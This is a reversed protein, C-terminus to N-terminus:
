KKIGARVRANDVGYGALLGTVGAVLWSADPAISGVTAAVATLGTVVGTIATQVFKVKDFAEGADRERYGALGNALAGVFGCVGFVTVPDM